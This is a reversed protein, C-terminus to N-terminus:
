PWAILAVCNSTQHHSVVYKFTQFNSILARRVKKADLMRGTPVNEALGLFRVVARMHEAPAAEYDESRLFLLQQRPFVALWPPLFETCAAPAAGCLCLRLHAPM